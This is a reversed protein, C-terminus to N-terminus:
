ASMNPLLQDCNVNKDKPSKQQTQLNVLCNCVQFIKSSINKFNAPIHSLIEFKKIRADAKEDPIRAPKDVDTVAKGMNKTKCSNNSGSQKDHEKPIGPNKETEDIAKQVSNSDDSSKPSSDKSELQSPVHKLIGLHLLQYLCDILTRFINSITARSTCFREGLDLDRFNLKLKM